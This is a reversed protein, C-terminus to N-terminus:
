QLCYQDLIEFSDERVQTEGSDRADQSRTAPQTSLSKHSQDQIIESRSLIHEPHIRKNRQLRPQNPIRTMEQANLNSLNKREM